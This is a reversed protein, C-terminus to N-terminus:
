IPHAEKLREARSAVRPGLKKVAEDAYKHLEAHHKSLIADFRQQMEKRMPHKFLGTNMTDTTKEEYDIIYYEEDVALVNSYLQMDGVGLVHLFVLERLLGDVMAREFSVPATELRSIATDIGLGRRNWIYYTYGGMSATETHEDFEWGELDHNALSEMRLWALGTRADVRYFYRLVFRLTSSLMSSLACIWAAQEVSYPGKYVVPLRRPIWVFKKARSTRKQGAGVVMMELWSPLPAPGGTSRKGPDAAEAHAARRKEFHEIAKTYYEAAKGPNETYARIGRPRLANEYESPGQLKTGYEIFFARSFQEEYEGRPPHSKSKQTEDMVIGQRELEADLQPRTDRKALASHCDWTLEPPTPMKDRLAADYETTALLEKAAAWAAAVQATDPGRCETTCHSSDCVALIANMLYLRKAGGTARAYNEMCNLIYGGDGIPTYRIMAWLLGDPQEALKGLFSLPRGRWCPTWAKDSSEDEIAVLYLSAATTAATTNRAILASGFLMALMNHTTHPPDVYGGHGGVCEGLNFLTNISEETLSLRNLWAAARTHKGVMTAYYCMRVLADAFHPSALCEAATIHKRTFKSTFNHHVVCAADFAAASTFGVDEAMINLIRQMTAIPQGAAALEAAFCCLPQFLRLRVCKQMASWLDKVVFLRPSLKNSM